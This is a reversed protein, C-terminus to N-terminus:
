ASKWSRPTEPVKERRDAALKLLSSAAHAACCFVARTEDFSTPTKLTVTVGADGVYETCSAHQCMPSQRM